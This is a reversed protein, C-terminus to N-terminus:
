QFFVIVGRVNIEVPDDSNKDSLRVACALTGSEKIWASVEFAGLPRDVLEGTDKVFKGSFSNLAVFHPTGELPPTYNLTKVRRMGPTKGNSESLTKASFKFAFEMVGVFAYASIFPGVGHAPSRPSPSAEPHYIGTGGISERETELGNSEVKKPRMTKPKLKSPRPIHAM